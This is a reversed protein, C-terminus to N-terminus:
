YPLETYLPAESLWANYIALKTPTGGTLADLGMDTTIATFETMKLASLGFSVDSYDNTPAYTPLSTFTCSPVWMRVLSGGRTRMVMEVSIAPLEGNNIVKGIMTKLQLLNSNTYEFGSWSLDVSVKDIITDAVFSPMGSELKKIGDIKPQFSASKLGGVSGSSDNSAFMSFPSIIGTQNLNLGGASWCPITWTDGVTAGTFAATFQVGQCSFAFSALSLSSTVLEGYTNFVEIVNAGATGASEAVVGTSGTACARIIINGDVKGTYGWTPATITPLTTLGNPAWVEEPKVVIVAQNSAAKVKKSKSAPIIGQYTTPGVGSIIARISPRGVRVQAVGVLVGSADKVIPQTSRDLAM